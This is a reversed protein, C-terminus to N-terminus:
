CHPFLDLFPMSYYSYISLYIILHRKFIFNYNNVELNNRKKRLFNYFYKNIKSLSISCSCTLPLALPPSCIRFCAGPESSDALAQHQAWVLLSRSWSRPRPQISPLSLWGPVGLNNRKKFLIYKVCFKCLFYSYRLKRCWLLYLCLYM